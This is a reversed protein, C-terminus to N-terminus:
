NLLMPSQHSPHKTDTQNQPRRLKFGTTWRLIKELHENSIFLQFINVPRKEGPLEDITPGINAHSFVKHPNQKYFRRMKAGDGNTKWNINDPLTFNFGGLDDKGKSEGFINVIDNDAFDEESSEM